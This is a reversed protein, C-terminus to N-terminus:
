KAIIIQFNRWRRSIIIILITFLRESIAGEVKINHKFAMAYPLFGLLFADAREYCLYDSYKEDVGYWIEEDKGEYNVVSCLRVSKNEGKKLYPKSITIM